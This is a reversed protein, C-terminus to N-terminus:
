INSLLRSVCCHMKQIKAGCEDSVAIHFVSPTKTYLALRKQAIIVLNPVARRIKTFAGL